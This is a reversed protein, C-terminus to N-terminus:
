YLNEVLQKVKDYVPGNEQRTATKTIVDLQDKGVGKETLTTKLELTKVLDLIANGVAVADKEDDGSQKLGIFPAMRALQAADEKSSQAKLKVVHGLTLCSTIGHPIQYPSGLAYGLTHSLGLGGKVNLALFGLSAFAALQLRTIVEEDKSDQKYKPLNKFLEGAAFMAMWRCPMETSTPHYMLEMAHDMARMGTSMWLWQPTELAFKSDYLIARPALEPHAVGTKMGNENTYGAGLTCEAASLTTPIAIHYLFKGQKRENLRYSIAKASDIPSGGGVSIITDISEDNMVMETAQDLEKVPAHQGIKSFTGAHHKPGLLEEVQKILSTKSALSSGTVIFAKSSESPLCELLHKKVSEPGYYLRQLHTPKWLGSLPHQSSDTM